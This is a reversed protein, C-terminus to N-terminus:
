AEGRGGDVYQVLHPWEERNALILAVAIIYRRHRELTKRSEVGAAVLAGLPLAGRERLHNLWGPDAAVRRAAELVRERTDRHKPASVALDQFTIGMRGLAAGYEEIEQRRAEEAQGLEWAAQAARDLLPTGVHGDEDTEELETLPVERGTAQRRQFDILRRRIVTEAFAVFAGRGPRFGDIAQNFAMLAVTVEDDSGPRLYRGVARGAVRLVFPTFDRLLQERADNDGEQARSLLDRAQREDGPFRLGV